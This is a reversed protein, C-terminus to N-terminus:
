INGTPPRQAQHPVSAYPGLYCASRCATGQTTSISISRTKCSCGSQEPRICDDIPHLVTTLGYVIFAREVVVMREVEVM